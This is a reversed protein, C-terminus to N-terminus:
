FYPFGKGFLAAQTVIGSFAMMALRGNSIEKEAMVAQAEPTKGKLNFPDFKFDGPPAADPNNLLQFVKPVGTILEIVSIALLLAFMPGKEVAADHAAFSSVQPAYPVYFGLDVAVYGAVALMCVRAHKLEAERAWNLPVVNSLLLPDFGKDGPM